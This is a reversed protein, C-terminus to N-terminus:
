RIGIPWQCLATHQHQLHTPSLQTTEDSNLVLLQQLLAGCRTPFEERPGPFVGFSVRILM